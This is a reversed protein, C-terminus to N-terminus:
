LLLKWYGVDVWRGLKLGVEEITGVKVFGLREHLAVSAPNPLAITGIVCHFGALKLRGILARYLAIGIGERQHERAVYVTTEASFRYASRRHWPAAYAYGRIAGDRELVLWPHSVSGESIRQAMSAPIVPQEEFSIATGAVYYNYIDCIRQADEPSAPRIVGGVEGTEMAAGAAGVDVGM